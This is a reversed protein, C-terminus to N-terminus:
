IREERRLGGIGDGGDKGKASPRTEWKVMLSSSGHVGVLADIQWGALMQRGAWYYLQIMQAGSSLSRKTHSNRIM